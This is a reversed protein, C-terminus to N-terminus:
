VCRDSTAVIQPAELVLAIRKANDVLGIEQDVVDGIDRSLTLDM